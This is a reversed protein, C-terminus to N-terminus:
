RSRQEAEKLARQSVSPPGEKSHRHRAEKDEGVCVRMAKARTVWVCLRTYKMRESVRVRVRNIENRM